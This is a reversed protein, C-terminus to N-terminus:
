KNAVLSMAVWVSYVKGDQGSYSFRGWGDQEEMLKLPTSSPMKFAIDYGTGPGMRANVTDSTTHWIKVDEVPLAAADNSAAAVEEAAVEEKVSVATKEAVAPAAEAMVDSASQGQEERATSTEAEAPMAADSQTTQTGSPEANGAAGTILEIQRGDVALEVLQWCYSGGTLGCTYTVRGYFPPTVSEKALTGRFNWEFEGMRNGPVLMTLSYEHLQLTPQLAELIGAYIEAPNPSFKGEQEKMIDLRHQYYGWGGAGIAALLVVFFILKKM